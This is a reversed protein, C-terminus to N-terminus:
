KKSSITDAYYPSFLRSSEGIKIDALAFIRGCAELRHSCLCLRGQRRCGELTNIVKSNLKRM